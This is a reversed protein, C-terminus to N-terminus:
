LTGDIYVLQAAGSQLNELTPADDAIFMIGGPHQDSPMMALLDVASVVAVGLLLPVNNRTFIDMSFQEEVHNYRVRISYVVTSLTVEFLTDYGTPWPIVYATAM